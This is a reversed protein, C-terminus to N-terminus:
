DHDGFRVEGRVIRGPPKVLRLISAATVSKGSGSEGVLGVIEGADVHFSVGNLAQVTRDPLLFHTHLDRVELLHAHEVNEAASRPACRWWTRCGMAWWTSASCRSSSRWGQFSRSGGNM